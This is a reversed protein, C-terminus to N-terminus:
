TDTPGSSLVPFETLLQYCLGPSRSSASIRFLANALREEELYIHKPCADQRNPDTISLEGICRASHKVCLLM